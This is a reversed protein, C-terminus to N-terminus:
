ISDIAKGLAEIDVGAEVYNIRIPTHGCAAACALIIGWEFGPHSLEIVIAPKETYLHYMLGSGHMGVIIEASYLADFAEQPTLDQIVVTHFDRRALLAEVEEINDAERYGADKRSIYVRKYSRQGPSLSCRSFLVNRLYSFARTSVGSAGLHALRNSTFGRTIELRAHPRLHVVQEPAGVLKSFLWYMGPWKFTQPLENVIVPILKDGLEQRLRDFVILQSLTDIIFHGFSLSGIVAQFLFYVHDDPLRVIGPPLSLRAIGTARNLDSLGTLDYGEGSHLWSGSMHRVQQTLYLSEALVSQDPLITSDRLDILQIDPEPVVQGMLDFARSTGPILVSMRGSQFLDEDSAVKVERDHPGFSANVPACVEFFRNLRKKRAQDRTSRYEELLDELGRSALTESWKVEPFNDDSIM